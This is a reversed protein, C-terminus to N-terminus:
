VSKMRLVQYRLSKGTRILNRNLARKKKKKHFVRFTKPQPNNWESFKGKRTLKCIQKDGTPTSKNLHHFPDVELFKTLLTQNKTLFHSLPIGNVKEVRVTKIYNNSSFVKKLMTNTQAKEATIQIMQHFRM